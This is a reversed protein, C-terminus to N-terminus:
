RRARIQVATGTLLYLALLLNIAEWSTLPPALRLHEAAAWLFLAGQGIAFALTGTALIQGRLFEDSGRWLVINVATQLAFLVLIAGLVAARGGPIRALTGMAALPLLLMVGALLLTSAQLRVSRVESRTAPLKAERGELNRALERRNFSILFTAIGLCVLVVGLTLALTDPWALSRVPVKLQKILEVCGGGLLAGSAAGAIVRIGIGVRRSSAQDVAEIAAM